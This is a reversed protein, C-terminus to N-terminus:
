PRRPPSLFDPSVGLFLLRFNSSATVLIVGSLFQSILFQWHNDSAIKNAATPSTPSPAGPKSMGIRLCITPKTKRVKTGPMRMRLIWLVPRISLKSYETPSLIAKTILSMGANSSFRLSSYSLPAAWIHAGKSILRYNLYTSYNDQRPRLYQILIPM